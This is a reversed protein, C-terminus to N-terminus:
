LNGDSLFLFISGSTSAYQPLTEEDRPFHTNTSYCLSSSWKSSVSAAGSMLLAEFTGTILYSLLAGADLSFGWWDYIKPTGPPRHTLKVDARRTCKDIAWYEYLETLFPTSIEYVYINKIPQSKDPSTWTDKTLLPCFFFVFLCSVPDRWTAFTMWKYFPEVTALLEKLKRWPESRGLSM